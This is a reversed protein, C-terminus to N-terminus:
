RGPIAIGALALHRRAMPTLPLGCPTSLEASPVWAAGDTSGEADHVVPERVQACRGAYVLHIAHFDELRGHPARGVFHDTTVGLLAGPEVHHGTEEWCERRAADVPDEGPEVGGGPLGWHGPRRTRASYRTLLIAGGLEARQVVVLASVRQVPTAAEGPEMVLGEAHPVTPPAGQPTAPMAVVACDLWLPGGPDRAAAAWATVRLGVHALERTPDAGHPLPHLTAERAPDTPADTRRARVVVGPDADRPRAGVPGAANLPPM